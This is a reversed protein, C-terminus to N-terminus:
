WRQSLRGTSSAQDWATVSDARRASIFPKLEDLVGIFVWVERTHDTSGRDQAPGQSSTRDFVNDLPQRMGVIM